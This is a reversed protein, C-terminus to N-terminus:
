IAIGREKLRPATKILQSRTLVSSDSGAEQDGESSADTDSLNSESDSNTDSSNESNDTNESDELGKNGCANVPLLSITLATAVAIKFLKLKKM